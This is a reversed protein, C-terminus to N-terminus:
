NHTRATSQLSYHFRYPNFVNLPSSLTHFYTMEKCHYSMFEEDIELDATVALSVVCSVNQRAAALSLFSTMGTHLSIHVNCIMFKEDSKKKQGMTTLQPYNLVTFPVEKGENNWLAAKNAMMSPNKTFLFLPQCNLEYERLNRHHSNRYFLTEYFHKIM